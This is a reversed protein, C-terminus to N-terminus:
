RTLLPISRESSSLVGKWTSRSLVTSNLEGSFISRIAHPDEIIVGGAGWEHFLGAIVEACPEETSVRIESWEM